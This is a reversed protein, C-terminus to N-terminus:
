LCRVDISLDDKGSLPFDSLICYEYTNISYRKLYRYMDDGKRCCVLLFLKEEAQLYQMVENIREINEKSHNFLTAFEMVEKEKPLAGYKKPFFKRVCGLGERYLWSLKEVKLRYMMWTHFVGLGGPFTKYYGASLREQDFLRVSFDNTGSRRLGSPIRVNTPITLYVFPTLWINGIANTSLKKVPANSLKLTTFNKVWGEEKFWQKQRKALEQGVGNNRYSSHVKADLVFGATCRIGNVVLRTEAGIATGIVEDENNLALCPFSKPFVVCRDLFHRKMIRLQVGRGQTISDDLDAIARDYNSHYSTLKIPM